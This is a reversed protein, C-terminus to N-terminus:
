HQWLPKIKINAIALEVTQQQDSNPLKNLLVFLAEVTM